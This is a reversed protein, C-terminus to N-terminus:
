RNTTQKKSTKTATSNERSAGAAGTDAAAPQTAADPAPPVPDKGPKRLEVMGTTNSVKIPVENPEVYGAKRLLEKKGEITKLDQTQKQRSEFTQQLKANEQKESKLQKELDWKNVYILRGFEFALLLTIVALAVLVLRRKMITPRAKIRKRSKVIKNIETDM